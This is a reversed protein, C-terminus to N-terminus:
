RSLDLGVSKALAVLQAIAAPVSDIADATV